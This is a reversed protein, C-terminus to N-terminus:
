TAAAGKSVLRALTRELALRREGHEPRYQPLDEGLFIDAIDSTLALADDRLADALPKLDPRRVPIAAAFKQWAAALRQVRLRFVREETEVMRDAIRIYLMVYLGDIPRICIERDAKGFPSDANALLDEAARDLREAAQEWISLLGDFYSDRNQALTQACADLIRTSYTQAIRRAGRKRRGPNKVKVIPKSKKAM